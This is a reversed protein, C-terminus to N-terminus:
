DHYRGPRIYTADARRRSKCSKYKYLSFMLVAAGVALGFGIKMNDFNGLSIAFPGEEDGETSEGNEFANPQIKSELEEFEGEILIEEELEEEIEDAFEELKEIEEEKQEEFAGDDDEM